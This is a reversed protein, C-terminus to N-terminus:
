SLTSDLFKNMILTFETATKTDTRQQQQQEENGDSKLLLLGLLFGSTIYTHRRACCVDDGRTEESGGDLLPYRDIIYITSVYRFRFLFYDFIEVGPRAFPSLEAFFRTGSSLLV